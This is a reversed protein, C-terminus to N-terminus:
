EEALWWNEIKDLKFDAVKETGNYGRLQGGKEEARTAEIKEIQDQYEIKVKLFKAM